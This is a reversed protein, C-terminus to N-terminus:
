ETLVPTIHVGLRHDVESIREHACLLVALEDVQLLLRQLLLTEAALSLRLIWHLHLLRVVALAQNNDVIRVLANAERRVRGVEKSDETELAQLM